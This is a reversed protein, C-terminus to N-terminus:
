ECNNEKVTIKNITREKRKGYWVIERAYMEWDDIKIPVTTLTTKKKEPCEYNMDFVNEFYDKWDYETHITVADCFPLAVMAKQFQLLDEYLLTDDFFQQTFSRIDSFFDDFEACCCLFIGEEFPWYIDGFRKDFFNLSGKGQLFPDVSAFVKEFIKKVCTSNKEIWDFLSMYFDYYSIKKAKRLYIAMFRLMGMCHFSQACATIKLATKWESSSMTSTEVVIESRSGILENDGVPEHNQCFRSSITKIKYRDVFQKSYMITNPLFECRYMAICYHQGAEIISFLGRCYSELTEGPLGLIVDTYTYIGAQRYKDLQASLKEVSMKERGIIRLVQPSMSQVAVSVGRNLGAKELSEIIEFTTDDKNKAATTEFVEPFGYQKNLGIVYQAILLDRDLIGFNSDACMCYSVRHKAMWELDAKVRSLPFQRFSSGSRAWCCYICGYPCGRNTELVANFQVGKYKPNNIIEDFLGTLYPSPFSELSAPQEEETKHLTDGIRVSLNPITDIPKNDQLACLIRFFPVEGEGHMLIDIFSYDELYTLDNPIQPGGFAIICEPWKQKIAKALVLNYEINWLYSSFGVLFPSEMESVVEDVPSKTIIFDKLCYHDQIEKHSFAYAAITGASYPLFLAGSASYNAQVLYINKM